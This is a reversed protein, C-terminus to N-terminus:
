GTCKPCAITGNANAREFESQVTDRLDSPLQDIQHQIVQKQEPTIEARFGSGALPMLRKAEDETINNIVQDILSDMQGPSLAGNTLGKLINKFADRKQGAYWRAFGKLAVQKDAAGASDGRTWEGGTPGRGKPVRPENSVDNGSGTPALHNAIDDALDRLNKTKDFYTSM